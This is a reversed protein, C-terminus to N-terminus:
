KTAANNQGTKEEVFSSGRQIELVIKEISTEYFAARVKRAIQYVCAAGIFLVFGHWAAAPIGLADKFDTTAFTLLITLLVGAPTKWEDRSGINQLHKQLCCTVWETTTYFSGRVLNELHVKSKTALINRPNGTKIAADHKGMSLNHEAM